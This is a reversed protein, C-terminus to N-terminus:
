IIKLKNFKKNFLFIYKIFFLFYFKLNFIFKQINLFKLYNFKQISNFIFFLNKFKFGYYLKKYQFLLTLLDEKSNVSLYMLNSTKLRLIENKLFIYKIGHSTILNQKLFFRLAISPILLIFSKLKLQHTFLIISIKKKLNIM